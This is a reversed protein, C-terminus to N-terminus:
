TIDPKLQLRWIEVGDWDMLDGGSKDEAIEDQEQEEEEEISRRKQLMGAKKMLKIIKGKKVMVCEFGLQKAKELGRDILDSDRRELSLLILPFPSKSKSTHGANSKSLISLDRLTHLLPSTLTQEYLTDSTILLDFPPQIHLCDSVSNTETNHDGPPTIWGPIDWRWDSSSKTWDLVKVDIKGLGDTKLGFSNREWITRLQDINSDITKQLVNSIVVPLDTAVIDIGLSALVLATLGVGSGLEIARLKRRRKSATKPNYVDALYLTLLQSSLWLTTGTSTEERDKLTPSGLHHSLPQGPGRETSIASTQSLVVTEPARSLPKLPYKLFPINKTKFSPLPPSYAIEQNSSM